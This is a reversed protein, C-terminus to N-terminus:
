INADNSMRFRSKKTDNSNPTEGGKQFKPIWSRSVVPAAREECGPNRSPPAVWKSDGPKSSAFGLMNESAEVQDWTLQVSGRREEGGTPQRPAKKQGCFFGMSEWEKYPWLPGHSFIALHLIGEPKRSKMEPAIKPSLLNQRLNWHPHFSPPKIQHSFDPPPVDHQIEQTSM